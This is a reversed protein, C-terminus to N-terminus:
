RDCHVALSTSHHGTELPHYEVTVQKAEGVDLTGTAPSVTFPSETSLSYCAELNGTNHVLLTKQTSHNVPCPSFDLQDPFDLVPRAGIARIPVSVKERESSCVLQHFHDQLFLLKSGEPTFLINITCVSGPPIQHCVGNPGVLKFYPSSDMTVKVLRTVKDRNRLLLATECVKGLVYNQFVLESPVPELLTKYHDPSSFKSSSNESTGPPRVTKPLKTEQPSDPKKRLRLGVERFDFITLEVQGLITGTEM